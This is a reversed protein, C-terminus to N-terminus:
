LIPTDQWQLQRGRMLLSLTYLVMNVTLGQQSRRIDEVALHQQYRLEEEM